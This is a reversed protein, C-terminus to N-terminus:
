IPTRKKKVWKLEKMEEGQEGEEAGGEEEDCRENGEEEDEEELLVEDSDALEDDPVPPHQEQPLLWTYTGVLIYKMLDKGDKAVPYPGATDLSLTAALPHTVKRHPRSKASQEQCIRCDRRFPVHGNQCHQEWTMRKLKPEEEVNGNIHLACAEAVSRCLGPVWRALSSSPVKQGEGRSKSGPNKGKPLRLEVNAALTTPKVPADEKWPEYDGQNLHHVQLHAASQLKKWPKTSWFSVCSPMYDKPDSPQELLFMVEERKKKEEDEETSDKLKAAMDAVLFLFIQRWMLVDDEQCMAMEEPSYASIGWPEEWSRVPRPGGPYHRLVSRTRCNPGGIVAALDGDLALRLLGKYAKSDLSAMDHDDGRQLDVELTRSGLGHEEVAKQLTFGERKGAYLHLIVSGAAKLRKRQHRNAPLDKWEGPQQVLAKKVHEPLEALAPHGEVLSKMWGVEREPHVEGVLRAQKVEQARDEYEQILELALQKPIQPCGAQISIPLSGKTPHAVKMGHKKWSIKCGGGALMGLPVIPEVQLNTSVMVGSETMLLPTTRGDALSVSVKKFKELSDTSALPRPPHTAGSDLLGWEEEQLSGMKAERVRTLKLTKISKKIEDLQQHLRSLKAESAEKDKMAKLMKNAEALLEDMKEDDQGGSGKGGEEGKPDKEEEKEKKVKPPSNPATGGSNEKTPCTPALHKTSGCLYCRKQEDKQDHSWKCDRGRRCGAESLFFKCPLKVEMEKLKGEGGKAKRNIEEMKKVKSEEKKMTAGSRKEALSLQEIEAILHTAFQSVSLANPNTDVQLANRALSVRFRLSENGDLVRKTLRNLGKVLISPDPETAGIEQARARWRLWRRLGVVTDHLNGPETPDELNRLLMQKESIGGPCYTVHLHALIAFVSLRKTAVLEDKQVEPIAKLLLTAMRRELKAWKPVSLSSPPVPEHKVRELPAMAQHDQYWKEVETMMRDWWIDSTTTLDAVVPQVLLLWDGLQLQSTSGHLPHLVPLEAVQRVIEVGKVTGQAEQGESIQRQLSKMSEVLLTLVEMQQVEPSLKAGGTTPRAGRMEGKGYSPSRGKRPQEKSRSRSGKVGYRAPYTSWPTRGRAHLDDAGPIGNPGEEDPTNFNSASRPREVEEREKKKKEEVELRKRDEGEIRWEYLEQQLRDNERQQAQCLDTLRQVDQSIQWRWMIEEEQDERERDRRTRRPDNSSEECRRLEESEEEEMEVMRRYGEKKGGRKGERREEEEELFAPRSVQTPRDDGSSSPMLGPGFLQPALRASAKAERIQEQTFLPQMVQPAPPALPALIAPKGKPAEVVSEKSGGSKFVELETKGTGTNGLGTTSRAPTSFEKKEDEDKKGDGELAEARAVLEDSRPEEPPPMLALRGDDDHEM